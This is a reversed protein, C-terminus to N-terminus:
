APFQPHPFWAAGTRTNTPATALTMRGSSPCIESVPGLLSAFNGQILVTVVIAAAAAVITTRASAGLAVPDVAPGAAVGRLHELLVLLHRVVGREVAVAHLGLVVQLKGVVV